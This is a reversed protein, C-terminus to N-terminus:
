AAGVQRTTNAAIRAREWGRKRMAEFAFGRMQAFNDTHGNPRYLSGWRNSLEAQPLIRDEVHLVNPMM